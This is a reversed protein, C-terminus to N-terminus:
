LRPTSGRGRDTSQRRGRRRARPGHADVARAAGMFRRHRALPADPSRRRQRARDAFRNPRRGGAAGQRYGFLREVPEHELHRFEVLAPLDFPAYFCVVAQVRASVGDPAPEDPLTALLAALHAGSSIGLAAIRDPDVNLREAHRRVWRVSERLDDLVGPWSPAGLRALRYDIVVVVLGHEALRTFTNRADLRILLRSGAIWSGGHVAIVAPRREPGGRGDATPPLYVDLKLPESGVRQYVQDKQLTVGARVWPPPKPPPSRYWVWATFAALGLWAVTRTAIVATRMATM